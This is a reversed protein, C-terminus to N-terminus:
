PGETSVQAQAPAASDDAHRMQEMLNQIRGVEQPSKFEKVIKAAQRPEMATLYRIVTADDLGAFVQKVQRAQMSQYLALSDQFGEDAALQQAAAERAALAEEAERLATRDAALQMQALD